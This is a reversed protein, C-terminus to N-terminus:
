SCRPPAEPDAVGEDNDIVTGVADIDDSGNSAQAYESQRRSRKLWVYLGCCANILFLTWMTLVNFDVGAGAVVGSFMAMQVVNSAIWFLWQEWYMRTMLVQAIVSLSNALADLRRPVPAHEFVYGGTLLRAFVPIEYYVLVTLAAVGGVVAAWGQVSLSAVRARHASDMSDFWSYIGFFQMPLLFLLNLQADGAYGYALAYVGFVSVSIIGFFFTSYKGHTALVVGLVGAFSVVGSATMIIRRWLEMGAAEDNKWRLISRSPDALANVDVISFIVSIAGFALVAVRQLPTFTALDRPVSQLLLIFRAQWTAAAGVSSM